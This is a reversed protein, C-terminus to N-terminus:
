SSGTTQYYLEAAQNLLEKVEDDTTQSFDQYWYGVGYFPEPTVLCILEDVEGQFDRCTEKAATPVAVVIKRPGLKKVATVAARMSSGTALGDDILIVTKGRADIPSRSGRYVAMRRNLEVEEQRAVNDIVEWPIELSNVVEDNIIRVGGPAIAGMALEEHGPLGLKRVLFIDLPANLKRAVEYAVPVGGRPLALILLDRRGAYSRLRDALKGGADKRDLFIAM